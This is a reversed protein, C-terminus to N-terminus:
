IIRLSSGHCGVRRAGAAAMRGAPAFKEVLGGADSGANQESEAERRGLGRRRCRREGGPPPVRVAEVEAVGNGLVVAHRDVLVLLDDQGSLARELGKRGDHMCEVAYNERTVLESMLACLELDDDIVLIRM